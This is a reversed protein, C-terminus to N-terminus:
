KRLRAHVAPALSKSSPRLNEEAARDGRGAEAIGVDGMTAFLCVRTAEWHAANAMEVYLPVQLMEWVFHLLFSFLAFPLLSMRWHHFAPSGSPAVIAASM